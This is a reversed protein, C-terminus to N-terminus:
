CPIALANDWDMNLNTLETQDKFLKYNLSRFFEFGEEASAGMKPWLAQSTEFFIVPRHERITERGGRFVNIEAGEVDVKIFNPPPIQTEKVFADLTEARCSTKTVAGAFKRIGSMDEDSTWNTLSAMTEDEPIFFDLTGATDSLAVNFPTISAHRATKDLHKFILPNPEFAYVDATQAMLVSYIGYNAGVDYCVGKAYRRIIDGEPTPRFAAITYGSSNTLDM